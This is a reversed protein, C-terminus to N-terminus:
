EPARIQSDSSFYFLVMIMIYVSFQCYTSSFYFKSKSANSRVLTDYDSDVEDDHDKEDKEDDEKRTLNQTRPESRGGVKQREDHIRRLLDEATPRRRPDKTLLSSVLASLFPSVKEIVRRDYVGQFQAKFIKKM